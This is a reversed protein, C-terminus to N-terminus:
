KGEKEANHVSDEASVQKVPIVFIFKSGKGFESEVWIKGGHLEVLKKTLALGLGTGEYQRTYTSELQTFEQFLKPFDEPKIGIGTDVVSIDIFNNFNDNRASPTAIEDNLIAEDSKNRAIVSGEHVKRASVRVSGGDPTFKVANSLLNFMIQKFKRKDAEIEIDAEPDMDLDLKLDHKMAKEKFLSLAVGLADRLMFSDPELEMKGSEVKSLDLIDNILNLLHVGSEYIDKSYEKQRENLKGFLEDALVESFGLISNLPTRLEHSMNALFDSKAKNATEAQLRELEARQVMKRETVDKCMHIYQITKGKENKIPYASVEVFKEKGYKDVHIHSLTVPNGTNQLEVIPCIEEYFDCPKERGHTVEYCHKGTIEDMKSDLKSLVTKNAWLIRYDASLLLIDEGIGDTINKLIQTSERLKDEAQKREAIEKRLSSTREAVREELQENLERLTEQIEHLELNQKYANEYTSLLLDLIQMREATIFYNEGAFFVNIGMEARTSKRLERNTILYQIRSLLYKEDYPKVIFNNAGSELGKIVDKPDSLSTVLIVPTESFKERDRIKSCLEYGDMEPMMIDSIVIDPLAEDLMSLAEIGNYAVSIQYKHQELIYQLQEAQTPSDEVILIKIFNNKIADGSDM